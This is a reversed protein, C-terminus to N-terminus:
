HGKHYVRGAAPANPSLHRWKHRWSPADTESTLTRPCRWSRM